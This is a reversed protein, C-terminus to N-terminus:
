EYQEEDEVADFDFEDGWHDDRGAFHKKRITGRLYDKKVSVIYNDRDEFFHQPFTMLKIPIATLSGTVLAMVFTVCIGAIQYGAQQKLTYDGFPYDEHTSDVYKNGGSAAALAISSVVGGLIGPM